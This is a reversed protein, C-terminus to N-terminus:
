LSIQELPQVSFIIIIITTKKQGMNRNSTILLLHIHNLTFHHQLAQTYAQECHCHTIATPFRQPPITM